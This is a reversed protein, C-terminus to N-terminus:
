SDTFGHTPNLARWNGDTLPPKKPDYILPNGEKDTGTIVPQPDPISEIGEGMILAVILFFLFTFFPILM